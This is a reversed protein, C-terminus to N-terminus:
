DVPLKIWEGIIKNYEKPEFGFFGGGDFFTLEGVYIRENVEYFDIRIHYTNASLVRSFEIMKSLNRPLPPCVPARREGVQTFECPTGDIYFFDETLGLKSGRDSTIYFFKPEGNFCYFKYDTLYNAGSSDILLPEIIIRKKLGRYPWERSYIYYDHKFAKKLKQRVKEIDLPAQPTCIVYSGSDHTCKIIYKEPLADFDIDDFNDWVGITPITYMLGIRDAVFKKMEVKDVMDHYIPKRDYLKIWQLKETFAEPKKLDPLSGMM